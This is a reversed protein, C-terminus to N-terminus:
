DLLATSTSEGVTGLQLLCHIKTKRPTPNPSESKKRDYPEALSRTSKDGATGQAIHRHPLASRGQKMWQALCRM